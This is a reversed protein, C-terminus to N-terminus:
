LQPFIYTISNAKQQLSKYTSFQCFYMKIPFFFTIYIRNEKFFYILLNFVFIFQLINETLRYKPAM